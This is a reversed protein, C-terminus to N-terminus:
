KIIYYGHKIAYVVLGVRSNVDLKELLADRYGDISKPSVCMMDAIEKYTKDTCVLKLFEIERDKLYITQPTPKEKENMVGVIKSTVLDSYYFGKKSINDLALVLENKSTDKLLYGKAGLKIMKIISSEDENMTLALVPITFKNSLWDMTQFGDMIPMNIDLLIIEPLNKKNGLFSQLEKGNKAIYTVEYNPLKNILDSISSAVLEHDDVIIIKNKNM